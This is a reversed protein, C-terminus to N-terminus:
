RPFVECEKKLYHDEYYWRCCEIYGSEVGYTKSSSYDNIDTAIPSPFIDECFDNDISESTYSKFNIVIVLVLVALIILFVLAGFFGGGKRNVRMGGVVSVFM